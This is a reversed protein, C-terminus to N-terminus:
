KTYNDIIKDIISTDYAYEFTYPANTLDSDTNGKVTYQTNELYSLLNSDKTSSVSFMNYGDDIRIIHDKENVTYNITITKMCPGGFAGYYHKYITGKKMEDFINNLDTNTINITDGVQLDNDNKKCYSLEISNINSNIIYEMWDQYQSQLNNNEDNNQTINNNTNNDVNNDKNLVKDYILYSSLFIVFISLIIVLVMLMNEKKEM